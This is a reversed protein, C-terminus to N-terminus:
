FSKKRKPIWKTEKNYNVKISDKNLATVKLGDSDQNLHLRLFKGDVGLLIMEQSTKDIAKIFGFYQVNPFRSINVKLPEKKVERRPFVRRVSNSNNSKVVSAYGGLFPDRAIRNLEFTDKKVIETKTSYNATNVYSVPENKSFYQNVYKYIVAGWLCLVLLLLVINLKKKM